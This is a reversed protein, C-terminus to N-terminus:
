RTVVVFSDCPFDIDLDHDGTKITECADGLLEIQSPNNLRWGDADDLGLTVGDLKVTGTNAKGDAVNGNLDVACSRVGDIITEFADTLAQPSTGAISEGSVAGGQEAVSDLHGKLNAPGVNIVEVTIGLESHIRAAEQAVRYQEAQATNFEMGDITVDNRADGDDCVTEGAELEAGYDDDWDRCECTDPAGDTALVIVKPGDVDMAALAEATATLSERTPTHTKVTSCEFQDKMPTHNDFSLAVETLEPCTTAASAASSYLALGFRVKDQLPPVVGYNDDVLVNRVVNWRWNRNGCDDEGATPYTGADTADSVGDELNSDAIMSGSQDILLVVNPIQPEFTIEEKICSDNGGGGSSGGAGGGGVIITNKAVCKGNESCIQNEDCPAEGEEGPTCESQCGRFADCFQGTPCDDNEDCENGCTKCEKECTGAANCFSDSSCDDSNDCSGTGSGNGSEITPTSNCAAPLALAGLGLLLAAPAFRFRRTLSASM